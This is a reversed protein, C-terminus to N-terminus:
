NMPPSYANWELEVVPDIWFKAEKRERKVHVHSPENRDSAYFGFRYPGIRLVTPM